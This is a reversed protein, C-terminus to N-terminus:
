CAAVDGFDTFMEAVAVKPVAVEALLEAGSSSRTTRFAATPQSRLTPARPHLCYPAAEAVVAKGARSMAVCLDKSSLKCAFPHALIAKAFEHGLSWLEDVGAESASSDYAFGDPEHPRSAEGWAHSRPAEWSHSGRSAMVAPWSDRPPM